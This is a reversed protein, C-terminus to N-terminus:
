GEEVAVVPQTQRRTMNVVAVGAIAMAGGAISLVSPWERQDPFACAMVMTIPPTIYMITMVRSAPMRVTAYAFALYAIAAPFIGLYAIEATAWWPAEMVRHVTAVGFVPLMQVVGALVSWLTFELAGFRSLFRKQVTVYFAACVASAVIFLAAPELTLSGSQGFVLLAIGTFSVGIGLVTRWTIREGLVFGAVIATWVPASNILLAATGASVKIEGFNLFPHYISFGVLGTVMFWLIEMGRPRRVGKVVAAMGLVMGAITFRLMALEGPGYVTVASKIVAFASAWFFITVSLALTVRGKPTPIPPQTSM